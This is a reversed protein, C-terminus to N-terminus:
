ATRRASGDDEIVYRGRGQAKAKYMLHDAKLLLGEPTSRANGIVCGISVGITRQTGAVEIPERLAAIIQQAVRDTAARAPLTLECLLVVFEDGGIRAVSDTGRVIATLRRAVEQLVRDGAEHGLTDNIPKFLDLDLFLVAVATEHRAAHALAQHLRDSLLVRNPLGTLADHHAAVALADNQENLKDLLRNFAAILTGVEDRGHVPLPEMPALGLSMQEAQAKARLLPRLLLYLATIFISLFVAMSFLANRFMFTKAHDVTVLAESTPIRAVVFWGTSPVTAMASIEEVGQANVTVGTGRYGAMAQDHLTNVGEPPTPRLVMDPQSAAVFLRDQPSILLFGGTSLGIRSKMLNDLFAPDSLYTLGILVAVPRGVGDTLQLMMPLVPEAAPGYRQARGVHVRGNALTHLVEPPLWPGAHGRAAAPAPTLAKGSPDTVLLGASFLTQTGQVSAVWGALAAPRQLDAAPLRAALHQLFAQRQTIKHDIDRAAYTALSWQQQSVVRTIDDRLFKSLVFYRGVLAIVVLSIGILLLRTLISHFFSPRFMSMVAM